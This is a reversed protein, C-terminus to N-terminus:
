IQNTGPVPSASVKHLLKKPSISRTALGPSKNGMTLGPVKMPSSEGGMPDIGERM